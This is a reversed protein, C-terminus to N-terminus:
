SLIHHTSGINRHHHLLFWVKILSVSLDFTARWHRHQQRTFHAIIFLLFNIKFIYFYITSGGQSDWDSRMSPKLWPKNESLNHSTVEWPKVEAKIEAVDVGISHLRRGPVRGVFVCMKVSTKLGSRFRCQRYLLIDENVRLSGAVTKWVAGDKLNKIESADSHRKVTTIGLQSVLSNISQAASCSDSCLHSGRIYGTQFNVRNFIGTFCKVPIFFLFCLHLLLSKDDATKDELKNFWRVLCM